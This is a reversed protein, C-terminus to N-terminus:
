HLHGREVQLRESRAWHLVELHGAGAAETCISDDWECGNARAWQLVKLHGGRAACGCTYVSWACGNARAWQLSELAGVGALSWCTREDWRRLWRPATDSDGLGRLWVLRGVSSAVSTVSGVLRKGAYQGERRVAHRAQAFLADRFTTCALAACLADDEPVHELVATLAGGGDLIRLLSGSLPDEM